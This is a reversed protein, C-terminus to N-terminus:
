QARYPDCERIPVDRAKVGLDLLPNRGVELPRALAPVGGRAHHELGEQQEREEETGVRENEAIRNRREAHEPQRDDHPDGQRPDTERDRMVRKM